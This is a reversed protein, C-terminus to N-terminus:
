RNQKQADPIVLRAQESHRVQADMFDLLPIDEGANNSRLAQKEVLAQRQEIIRAAELPKKTLKVSYAGEPVAAYCGLLSGCLVALLLLKTMKRRYDLLISPLFRMGPLAQTEHKTLLQLYAAHSPRGEEQVACRREIQYVAFSIEGTCM